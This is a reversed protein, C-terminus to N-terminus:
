KYSEPSHRSVEKEVRKDMKKAIQEAEDQRVQTIEAAKDPQNSTHVRMTVYRPGFMALTARTPYARITNAQILQRAMAGTFVLDVKGGQQVAGRGQMVRSQTALWEKRRQYKQSRPRLNYRARNGPRFHRPLCTKHWYEAADAHAATKVKDWRRKGFGDPRLFDNTVKLFSRMM